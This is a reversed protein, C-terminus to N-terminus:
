GELVGTGTERGHGRTGEHGGSRALGELGQRLLDQLDHARAIDVAQGFCARAEEPTEFRLHARGTILLGGAVCAINGLRRQVGVAERLVALADERRDLGALADGLHALSFAIRHLNGHRRWLTLGHRLHSEAGHLDGATLLAAGMTSHMTAEDPNGSVRERAWARSAYEVAAGGPRTQHLSALQWLVSTVVGDDGDEEAVALAALLSEEAQEWRGARRQSDGISELMRAQGLLDGNERAIALALRMCTQAEGTWWYSPVYGDLQAAIRWALDPRTSSAAQRIAEALHVLERGCWALASEYGEFVPLPAAPTEVVPTSNRQGPAMVASAAQLAAAYWVMLRTRAADRAGAPDEDLAREAAFEGVLDHFRYRLPEPSQLLQFDVLLELADGAVETPLGALAAASEVGFLVGPWLGLLRFVRAAEREVPEDGDSLALYSPMLSARVGLHGVALGGLRRGGELQQALVGLSWAPRAALRAAAIRLALPLGACAALVRLAGDPDAEVRQAGCSAALLHRQEEVDLPELGVRVTGSVAALANRSTVIAACGGQGPLLPIVQATDRANDLVLLVRRDALLGRLLAARDGTDEPLPRSRLDPSLLTLLGALVDHATRPADTGFGRLDVYLQGDPFRDKVRHATQVALATKGIGGMGTVLAVCPSGDAAPAGLHEVLTALEDTRGSFDATNAPLQATWALPRAPHRQSPTGSPRRDSAPADSRRGDAHPGDWRPGDSRLQDSRLIEQHLRQATSSPEVGLEDRLTTRLQQYAALARERHGEQQLARLLLHHFTERLPYQEVLQTLEPVIGAAGGQRVRAECRWELMQLRAEQWRERVARAADLEALEALPTGRWLVLAAGAWRDVAGWDEAQLAARAREVHRDFVEADLEGAAVRLQYGLPTSVLRAATDDALAHRLRAMLNRVAATGSSPPSDQWLAYQLRDTSVPQNAHLLLFALMSRLRAGKVLREGAGEHVTLPGLVGFRM